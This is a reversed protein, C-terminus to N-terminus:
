LGLYAKKVGEHHILDSASGSLTVQGNELVFARSAIDLSAVVNQEVLIITMGMAHLRVIMRFMEQVMIPSLGLSPEDFLILTPEAMLCRGIALMQQEGGSLTGAQQFRREKLKPFLEFVNDINSAMRTKSRKLSGGVQLNELITMTPFVQRGEAVHGIGLEAITHSELGTIDQGEFFIHGSRPTYIGSITRILSTKGAGNGGVIATIAGKKVALDIGFLAQADDYFLDLTKIDLM